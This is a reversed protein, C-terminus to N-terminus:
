VRSLEPEGLPRTRWRKHTWLWHEPHERIMAELVAPCPGDFQGLYAIRHMEVLPMRALVLQQVAERVHHHAAATIFKHLPQQFVIMRDQELAQMRAEVQAVWPQDTAPPEHSRVVHLM